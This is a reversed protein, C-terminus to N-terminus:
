GSRRVQRRAEEAGRKDGRAERVEAIRQWVQARFAADDGALSLAKQCFQEAAGYAGEAMKLAALEYYVEAAQPSMRQARELFSGAQALQGQARAKQAQQIMAQAAPSPLTREVRVGKAITRSADTRPAEQRPAPTASPREPEPVSVKAKPAPTSKPAPTKVERPPTYPGTACANLLLASLMLALGGPISGRAGRALRQSRPLESVSLREHMRSM